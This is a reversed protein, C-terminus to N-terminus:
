VTTTGIHRLLNDILLFICKLACLVADKRCIVTPISKLFKILTSFESKYEKFAASLFTVVKHM